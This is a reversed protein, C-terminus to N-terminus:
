CNWISENVFSTEQSISNKMMHDHPTFNLIKPVGALPGTAWSLTGCGWGILKSCWKYVVGITFARILFFVVFFKSMCHNCPCYQGDGKRFLDKLFFVYFFIKKTSGWTHTNTCIRDTFLIGMYFFLKECSQAM